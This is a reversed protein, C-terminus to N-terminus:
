KRLEFRSVLDRMSDAQATLEESTASAEQATASNTEVVEAIKNIGEDAQEMTHAQIASIEKMEKASEALSHVGAVVEQLSESANVAVRNGNSVESLSSEILQRSDIASQASQEALTRIQDAVVAFGRGADGARAAEISANLSLLNTQSAIDEIEGIINGIKQSADSIREMAGMLNEMDMRSNEAVQAYRQAQRYAEDLQESTSHIGENLTNITAQMEEVTAAQETAGEALDQAANALHNAGEYVQSSAIEVEELALSMQQNMGMIGSLLGKFDGQYQEEFKTNIKFNGAAMQEMMASTDSLINYLRGAMEAATVTIQAIEDKSEAEPFPSVLDGHAFSELRTELNHLPKEIGSAISATIKLSLVVVGVITVAIVALMVYELTELLKESEDGKQVNVEMLGKLAADLEQYLPTLENIMRDQAQTSKEPDTSDGLAVIENELTHYKEWAEDIAAMSAHGEPTIMTPRVLELYYEFDDISQDRQGKVADILERTEYGIIARTASRIEATANMAMGIDGQPFAFYNLVKNYNKIMFVMSFAVAISVVGFIGVVITFATVLRQKIKMGKFRKEM